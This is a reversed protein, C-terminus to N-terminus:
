ASQAKIQQELRHIQNKITISAQPKGDKVAQDYASKLKDLQGHLGGRSVSQSNGGEGGSGGTNGRMIMDRQPYEDVIRSIGEEFDALEGPNKRSYIQNGKSDYCVLQLEGGSEEVAIQRGFYSEAVDPPLLTKAPKTDTGVFMPSQAFRNSVMLQRIKGQSDILQDNLEKINSNFSSKLQDIESDKAAIVEQKIQEVKGADVLEKDKYNKVTELAKKAENFWAKPDDVGKFLESYQQAQERAENRQKRYRAAESNLDGVKNYLGPVDVPIDEPKDAEEDVLVVQGDSLAVNGDDDLKLKLKM